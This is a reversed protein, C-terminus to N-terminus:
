IVRLILNTPVILVITNRDLSLKEMKRINLLINTLLMPFNLINVVSIVSWGKLTPKKTNRQLCSPFKNAVNTVILCGETTNAFTDKLM